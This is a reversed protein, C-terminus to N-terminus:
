HFLSKIREIKVADCLISYLDLASKYKEHALNVDSKSLLDGEAECARAQGRRDSIKKDQYIVIAEDFLRKAAKKDRDGILNGKGIMVSAEGQKNGHNQYLRLAIAYEEIAKDYFGEERKADALGRHAEAQLEEESQASNDISLLKLAEVFSGAADDRCDHWQLCLEGHAIKAEAEGKSNSLLHYESRALEIDSEAAKFDGKYIEVYGKGVLIAAVAYRWGLKEATEEAKQYHKIADCCSGWKLELDGLSGESLSELWISKIDTAISAAEEYKTRAAAWIAQDSYLDGFKLDVEVQGRKNKEDRFLKEALLYSSQADGYEGTNHQIDGLAALANAQGIRNNMSSYLRMAEQCYEKARDYNLDRGVSAVKALGLTADAQGVTSNCSRYSDLSEQFYRGADGVNGRLRTLEGRWFNLGAQECRDTNGIYRATEDLQNEAETWQGLTIQFEVMKLLFRSAETSVQGDTWAASISPKAALLQQLADSYDGSQEYGMASTMSKDLKRRTDTLYIWGFVGAGTTLLIAVAVSLKRHKRWLVYLILAIAVAGIVLLQRNNLKDGLLFVTAILAVFTVLLLTKNRADLRKTFFDWFEQLRDDIFAM